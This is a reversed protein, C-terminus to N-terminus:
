SAAGQNLDGLEQTTRRPAIRGWDVNISAGVGLEVFPAVCPISDCLPATVHSM